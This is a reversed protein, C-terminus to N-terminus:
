GLALSAWGFIMDFRGITSPSIATFPMSEILVIGYIQGDSLTLPGAMLIMENDLCQSGMQILCDRITVVRGERIAQSILPNDPHIVWRHAPRDEPKVAEPWLDGEHWLYLSCADAGLTALILDVIASHIDSVSLSQLRKGLTALTVISN